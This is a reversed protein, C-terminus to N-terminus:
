WNQDFLKKLGEVIEDEEISLIACNELFKMYGCRTSEDVVDVHFFGLGQTASGLYLASELPKTWAPCERGVHESTQCIFCLKPESCHGLQGCNFCTVKIQKDQEKDVSVDPMQLQKGVDRGEENKQTGEPQKQKQV